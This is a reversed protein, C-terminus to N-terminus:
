IFRSVPDCVSMVVHSSRRAYGSLYWSRRFVYGIYAVVKVCRYVSYFARDDNQTDDNQTDDNQSSVASLCLLWISGMAVFVHFPKDRNNDHAAACVFVVSLPAGLSMQLQGSGRKIVIDWVVVRWLTAHQVVKQAMQIAFLPGPGSNQSPNLIVWTPVSANSNAAFFDTSGSSANPESCCRVNTFLSQSTNDTQEMETSLFCDLHRIQQGFSLCLEGTNSLSPRRDQAYLLVDTVGPTGGPVVVQKFHKNSISQSLHFDLTGEIPVNTMTGDRTDLRFLEFGSIKEMASHHSQRM